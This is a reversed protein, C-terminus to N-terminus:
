TIPCRSRSGQSRARNELVLAYVLLFYIRRANALPLAMALGPSHQSLGADHVVIQAHDAKAITLDIFAVQRWLHAQICWRYWSQVIVKDPSMISPIFNPVLQPRPGLVRLRCAQLQLGLHRECRRHIVPVAATTPWAHHCLVLGLLDVLRRSHRAGSQM